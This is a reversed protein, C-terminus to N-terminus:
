LRSLGLALLFETRLCLFVVDIAVLIFEIWLSIGHRYFSCLFRCSSISWDVDLLLSHSLEQLLCQCLFLHLCLLWALLCLLFYHVITQDLNTLNVLLVLWVDHLLGVAKLFSRLLVLWRDHVSWHCTSWVSTELRRLMMMLYRTRLRWGLPSHCAHCLTGTAITHILCKIAAGHSLFIQAEITAIYSVDIQVLFSLGNLDCKLILLLVLSDSCLRLRFWNTIHAGRLLRHNESLRDGGFDSSGRELRLVHLYFGTQHTMASRCLGTREILRALLDNASVEQGFYVWISSSHWLAFFLQVYRMVVSLALLLLVILPHRLSSLTLFEHRIAWICRTNFGYCIPQYVLLVDDVIRVGIRGRWHM